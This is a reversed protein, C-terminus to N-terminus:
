AALERVEAEPPTSGVSSFGGDHLVAAGTSAFLSGITVDGTTLPAAVVDAEAMQALLTSLRVLDDRRAQETNTREAPGVRLAFADTLAAAASRQSSSPHHPQRHHCVMLGWLRERHLISLSMFGNIGLNRHIQLHV